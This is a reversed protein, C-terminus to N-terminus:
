SKATEQQRVKAWRAKQAKAMKKRTAASFTRRNAPGSRSSAARKKAWWAKKAESLRERVATTMKRHARKRRSPPGPTRGASVAPTIGELATIARELRDRESKLDALITDLSM